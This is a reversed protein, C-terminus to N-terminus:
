GSENRKWKEFKRVNSEEGQRKRVNADFDAAIYHLINDETQLTTSTM